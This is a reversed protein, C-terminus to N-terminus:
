AMGFGTQRTTYGIPTNKISLYKKYNEAITILPKVIMILRLM